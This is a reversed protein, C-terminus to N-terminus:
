NQPANDVFWQAITAANEATIAGFATDLALDATKVVSSDVTQWGAAQVAQSLVLIEYGDALDAMDDNDAAKNLFVQLLSPATEVKAELVENYTFVLLDYPKGNIEIGSALTELTWVDANWNIHILDSIKNENNEFAMLTRVYAAESGTNKVTVIKDVPNFEPGFTKYTVEGVTIMEAENTTWKPDTTAPLLKKNNEFAELSGDEKRQQEIQDIYVNGVTMVNQDYDTDMLYALSISALATVVMIAAIALALIKKKM